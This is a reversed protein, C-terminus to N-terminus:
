IGKALRDRVQMLAFGLLNSGRWKSPNTADRHEPSLGIGWITELPTAQALVKGATGCLYKSLSPNQSFKATNGAVVADFRAQEWASPEYGRVQRGLSLALGPDPAAVIRALIERDRFLRAKAAMMFHEATPYLVGDVRFPSPYWQSLCPPGPAPELGPGPGEPDLHGWFFLFEMPEGALHRERLQQLWQEPLESM